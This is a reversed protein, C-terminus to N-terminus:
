EVKLRFILKQFDPDTGIDNCSYRFVGGGLDEAIMGSTASQSEMGPRRGSHWVNYFRLLGDTSECTIQTEPPATDSWIVIQPSASDAVRLQGDTGLFVGQRWESNVQEFVLRVQQGQRIPLTEIKIVEQSVSASLAANVVRGPLSRPNGSM